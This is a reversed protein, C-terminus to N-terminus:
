QPREGQDEPAAPQQRRELEKVAAAYCKEVSVALEAYSGNPQSGLKLWAHLPLGTGPETGVLALFDGPAVDKAEALGGDAINVLYASYPLRYDHIFGGEGMLTLTGGDRDLVVGHALVRQPAPAAPEGPLVLNPPPLPKVELPPPAAAGGAKVRPLDTSSPTLAPARTDPTTPATTQVARMQPSSAPPAEPALDPVTADPLVVRPAPQPVPPLVPAGQGRAAAPAALSTIVVLIAARRM